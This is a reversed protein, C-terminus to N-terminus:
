RGWCSSGSPTPISSSGTWALLMATAFATWLVFATRPPLRTDFAPPSPGVNMTLMTSNKM